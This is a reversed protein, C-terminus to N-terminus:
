LARHAEQKLIKVALPGDHSRKSKNKSAKVMQDHLDRPAISVEAEITTLGVTRTTATFVLTEGDYRFARYQM